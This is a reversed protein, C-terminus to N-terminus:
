KEYSGGADIPYLTTFAGVAGNETEYVTFVKCYRTATTCDYYLEDTQSVVSYNPSMKYVQLVAEEYARERAEELDVTDFALASRDPVSYDGMNNRIGIIEGNEVLISYGVDLSYQGRHVVYDVVYNDEDDSTYTKSITYSDTDALKIEPFCSQIVQIAVGDSYKEGTYRSAAIDIYDEDSTTGAIAGTTIILNSNGYIRWSKITENNNYQFTSAYNAAGIVTYGEILKAQFRRQWERADDVGISMTWGIVCEAGSDITATCLNKGTGDGDSATLCADYICLLTNNLSINRVSQSDTTWSVSGDTLVMDNEFQILHQIGHTSFYLVDWNLNAENLATITPSVNYESVYGCTRWNEAAEIVDEGDSFEGGLSHARRVRVLYQVTHTTNGIVCQGTITATGFSNVTFWGTQSNISVISPLNSNWQITSDENPGCSIIVGMNYQSLSYSMGLFESITPPTLLISVQENKDIKYLFAGEVLELEWKAVNSTLSSSSLSVSMGPYVMGVTTSLRSNDDGINELYYTSGASSESIDWRSLLPVDFIQMGMGFDVVNVSSSTVGGANMGMNLKYLPTIFYYGDARYKIRWLQQLQTNGSSSKAFMSVTTSNGIGLYLDTGVNRIYYVGEKIIVRITFTKYVTDGVSANITATGVSVGTVVGNANVTAITPNESTWTITDSVGSVTLTKTGGKDVIYTTSPPSYNITMSPRMTADTCDASYVSNYDAVTDDAYKLMIGYNENQGTTSGDYWHRVAMLCSFEYKTQNNHSINNDLVTGITPMNSWQITASEWSGNVQYAKANAATSTGAM